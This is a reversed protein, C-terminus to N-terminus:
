VAVRFFLTRVEFHKRAERMESLLPICYSDAVKPYPSRSQHRRVLFITVVADVAGIPDYLDILLMDSRAAFSHLSIQVMSHSLCTYGVSRTVSGLCGFGPYRM